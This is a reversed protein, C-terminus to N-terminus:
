READFIRVTGSRLPVNRLWGDAVSVRGAVRGDIGYEIAGRSPGGIQVDVIADGARTWLFLFRRGDLRTFLHRHVKASGDGGMVTIPPNSPTMTQHGLMSVLRQVTGFALKKRRTADTLGLYYNPADGIVPRDRPADKIEYIGIHEIRPEAAFTAIARAWWHAQETETRGPTTAYGMENIWIPKRGCAADATEVFGSEFSPGLYTEVTVDAPTWTEPYAHFPIVDVRDGSRDGECVAEIWEEDAFVMGGLLLRANPNGAAVADAGRRLVEVYADPSGDWWQQVNEENYIEYSVINRHRRMESALRRVFRYWADLDSPPDNWYDNDTGGAAVWAPTYGIYPRLTITRRTALEAFRHLWEFDYKGRAPEYDDWGFSGRWTMVGLEAFLDFDRAVDSLDQGKDYDELISFTLRKQSARDAPPSSTGACAYTFAVVVIASLCRM